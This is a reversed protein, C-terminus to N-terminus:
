AYIPDIKSADNIKNDFCLGLRADIEEIVFENLKTLKKMDTKLM